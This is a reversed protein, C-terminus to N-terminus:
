NNIDFGTFVLAKMKLVEWNNCNEDKEPLWLQKFNVKKVIELRHPLYHIDELVAGEPLKNLDIEHIHYKGTHKIAISINEDKAFLLAEIIFPNDIEKYKSFDHNKNHIVLPTESDSFWIYGEYKRTKIENIKM